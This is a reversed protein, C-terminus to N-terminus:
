TSAFCVLPEQQIEMVIERLTRIEDYEEIEEKTIRITQDEATEAMKEFIIQFEHKEQTM